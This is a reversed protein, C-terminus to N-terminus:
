PIGHKLEECKVIELKFDHGEEGVFEELVDDHIMIFKQNALQMAVNCDSAVFEQSFPIGDKFTKSKEVESKCTPCNCKIRAHVRYTKM